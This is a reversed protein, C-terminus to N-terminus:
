VGKNKGRYNETLSHCNPCLLQLNDLSHNRCNGDIHHLELPIPKDLWTNNHCYECKYEKIKDNLIRNKLKFTQYTPHKGDLIDKTNITISKVKHTGKGSQNPFYCGFKKAYRIFTNFHVELKRAAEAMTLSNNCVLEVSEKTIHKKM